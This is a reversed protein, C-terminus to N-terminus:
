DDGASGLGPMELGPMQHDVGRSAEACPHQHRGLLRPRDAQGDVGGHGERSRRHVQLAQASRRAGHSRRLIHKRDGLREHHLHTGLRDDDGVLVPRRIVRSQGMRRIM